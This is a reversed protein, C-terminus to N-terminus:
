PLIMESANFAHPISGYRVAADILPQLLKPDLTTGLTLRPMTRIVPEEIGTFRAITPVSEDHHANVYTASEAMVRRFTAVIDHNKAAYDATCFFAAGIFHRAIADFSHAFVRCKGSTFSATFIPNALMGGDVRGAAIADPMAAAPLEVFKLTKADGGNQDVWAQIAVAFIDGLATVSFTKGNLDAATKLPANKAVVLGANPADGNYIAAPAILVLPIGKAHAAVLGMSSSKGIDVAGGIVAAAIAAGSNARQVTVDLGAKRFAGTDVSWLAAIADEDPASAVLIAPLTQADLQTATAILAASAGAGLSTLFAARNAEGRRM